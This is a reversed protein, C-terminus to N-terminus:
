VNMKKATDETFTTASESDAVDHGLAKNVLAQKIGAKKDETFSVPSV